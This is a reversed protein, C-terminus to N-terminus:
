RIEVKGRHDVPRGPVLAHEGGLLRRLDDMADAVVDGAVVLQGRGDHRAPARRSELGHEGVVHM